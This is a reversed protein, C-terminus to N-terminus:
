FFFFSTSHICLGRLMVTASVAVWSTAMGTLHNYRAVRARIVSSHISMVLSTMSNILVTHMDRISVFVAGSVLHDHPSASFFFFFFFFFVQLITAGGAIVRGLAGKVHTMAGDPLTLAGVSMCRHWYVSLM